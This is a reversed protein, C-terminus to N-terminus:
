GSDVAARCVVDDFIDKADVGAGDGRHRKDIDRGGVKVGHDFPLSFLARGAVGCRAVCSGFSFPNTSAGFAIRKVAFPVVIRGAARRTSIVGANKVM